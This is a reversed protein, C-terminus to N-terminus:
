TAFNFNAVLTNRRDRMNCIGCCGEMKLSIAQNYMYINQRCGGVIIPTSM